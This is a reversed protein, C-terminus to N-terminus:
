TKTRRLPDIGNKGCVLIRKVLFPVVSLAIQFLLAGIVLELQDDTNTGRTRVIIVAVLANNMDKLMNASKNAAVIARSETAVGVWSKYGIEQVLLIVTPILTAISSITALIAPLGSVKEIICRATELSLTGVVALALEVWTPGKPPHHFIGDKARAGQEIIASSLHQPEYNLLQNLVLSYGSNKLRWGAIIGEEGEALKPIDLDVNDAQSISKSVPSKFNISPFNAFPKSKTANSEAIVPTLRRKTTWSILNPISNQIRADMQTLNRQVNRSHFTISISNGKSDIMSTACLPYLKKLLGDNQPSLYNLSAKKKSVCWSASSGLPVSDQVGIRSKVYVWLKFKNIPINLSRMTSWITECHMGACVGTHITVVMSRKEGLLELDGEIYGGLGYPIALKGESTRFIEPFVKEEGIGVVRPDLSFVESRGFDTTNSKLLGLEGVSRSYVADLAARGQSGLAYSLPLVHVLFWMFLLGGMMSRTTKSSSRFEKGRFNPIPSPNKFVLYSTIDDMESKYFM